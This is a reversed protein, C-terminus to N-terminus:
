TQRKEKQTMAMLARKPLFSTGDATEPGESVPRGKLKGMFAMFHPVFDRFLETDRNNLMVKGFLKLGVAFAKAEDGAFLERQQVYQVITALNDNNRAEFIIPELDAPHGHQDELKEVTIRYLHGKM